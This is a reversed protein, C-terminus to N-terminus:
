SYTEILQTLSYSNQVNLKEFIRRKYTNCTSYGLCLRRAIEPLSFGKNMLSAIEIERDSLADFPNPPLDNVALGAVQEALFPSFYKRGSLVKLLAQKIENEPATKHIFGSAGIKLCRLGFVEESVGSFVLVRCSSQKAAIATLDGPFSFEPLMIDLIVLDYAKQSLATFIEEQNNAEDITCSPLTSAIVTKIGSRIIPHNDALLVCQM